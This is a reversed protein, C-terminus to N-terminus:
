YALLKIFSDIRSSAREPIFRQPNEILYIGKRHSDKRLFWLGKQGKLFYIDDSKHPFGEPVSLMIYVTDQRDGKLTDHVELVGLYIGKGDVEFTIEARGTYTAVVILQSNEVLDTDTMRVWMAQAKDACTLAFFLAALVLVSFRVLRYNANALFM